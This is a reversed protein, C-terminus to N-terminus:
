LLENLGKKVEILRQNKSGRFPLTLDRQEHIYRGDVLVDAATLLPLIHSDTEAMDHLEEWTYGSYIWLNKGLEKAGLALPKLAEAQCFPEGGSLTVGQLLPNKQIEDLIEQATCLYGGDFPLAEPNHCGFCHHPCGQVFVVLRLGPGDVITQKVIGAIRIL